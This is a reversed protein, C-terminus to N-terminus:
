TDAQLKLFYIFQYIQCGSECLCWTLSVVKHVVSLISCREAPRSPLSECLFIFILLFKRQFTSMNKHPCKKTKQFILFHPLNFKFSSFPSLIFAVPENMGSGSPSGMSLSVSFPVAAAKQSAHPHASTPMTGRCPMGNLPTCMPNSYILFCWDLQWLLLSPEGRGGWRGVGDDWASQPSPFWSCVCHM